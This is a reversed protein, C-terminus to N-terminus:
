AASDKEALVWKAFQEIWDDRIPQRERWFVLFTLRIEDARKELEPRLTRITKLYTDDVFFDDVPIKASVQAPKEARTAALAIITLPEQNTTLPEQNPNNQSESILGTPKDQTQESAAGTKPRGGKAGNAANKKNQKRYEKLNIECREHVYGKETKAFFEDLILQFAETDSGLRLRRIVSQTELPIPAETDYYHNILRFYIAEETLSLHSTGLHWDAINFKYYHM